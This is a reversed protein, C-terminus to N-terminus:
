RKSLLDHYGPYGRAELVSILERAAQTAQPDGSELARELLTRAEQSWMTPEWRNREANVMATLCDVAQSPRTLAATALAEVAIFAPAVSGVNKLLMLLQSLRWDLDLREAKVWWAFAALEKAHVTPNATGARLRSQWLVKARGIVETLIEENAQLNRGIWELAEHRLDESALEFFRSVLSGEELGQLGRCYLIMLHQVLPDGGPSKRSPSKRGQQISEVARRYEQELMPWAYVGPSNFSLYAEWAADLRELNEPERPFIDSVRMAVWAEDLYCLTPFRWGYVARATTSPDVTVVLHRELATRLEPVRSLNRPNVSPEHRSLWVGYDIAAHLAEGRTTSVSMTGPDMNSGGYIAEDEPRPDPDDVIAEIVRWAAERLELPVACTTSRFGTQLLNAITKRAWGWHPDRDRDQRQADAASRPQAVVWSALELVPAWEFTKGATLGERIGELISRVYTPDLGVFAVASAAFRMPEVLVAATVERGLGSLSPSMWDSSPNWTKLHEVLGDISMAGLEAASKPSTPGSWIRSYAPFDPHDPEGEAVVLAEYRARWEAPLVDKLPALRDRQWMRLHRGLEEETPRAGYVESWRNALSELDPGTEIWSLIAARTGDSVHPFACRALHAYEHRETTDWRSTDLLREEVLVLHREPNQALLDLALRRYVPHGNAELKSIVSAAVQPEESVAERVCDRIASVLAGQMSWPRDKSADEIAQRWVPSHDDQSSDATIGLACDLFGCLLDITASRDVSMLAPRCKGLLMQYEYDDLTGRAHGQAISKDDGAPAMAFLQSALDFAAQSEGAGALAVVLDAIKQRFLGRSSRSLSGVLKPVLRVALAPTL